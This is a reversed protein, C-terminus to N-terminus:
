EKIRKEFLDLFWVSKEYDKEFLNFFEFTHKQKLNMYEKIRELVFGFISFIYYFTKM